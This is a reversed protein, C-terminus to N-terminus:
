IFLEPNLEKTPINTDNYILKCQPFVGKFEDILENISGEYVESTNICRLARQLTLSWYFRKSTTRIILYVVGLSDSYDKLIYYM